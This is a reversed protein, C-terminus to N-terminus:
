CDYIDNDDGAKNELEEIKITLEEIKNIAEKLAGAIVSIYTVTDFSLTPYEYEQDGGTKAKTEKIEKRTPVSVPNVILQGIINDSGDANALIDQAIFNLKKTKKEDNKLNYEALGLDDKIFNYMDSYTIQDAARSKSNIYSINEKLTRDSSANVGNLSYLTHWRYSPDGLNYNGNIPIFPQNLALAWGYATIRGDYDSTNYHESHFDLYKGVEVVGDSKVILTQGSWNQGLTISNSWYGNSPLSNVREATWTIGCNNYAYPPYYLDVVSIVDWAGNAQIYLDFSGNNGSIYANIDGESIISVISTNIPNEAGGFTLHVASTRYKGRQTIYFTITNDCWAGYVTINAIKAFAVNEGNMWVEHVYSGMLNRMPRNFQSNLDVEFGDEVSEKGIALGRGGAKFDLTVFAPNIRVVKSVTSFKDSLTLRVDYAYATSITNSGFVINGGNNITWGGSWSTDTARKYQVSTSVTNKNSLSHYTYSAETKINTGDENYTGTSLTRYANLGTIAPPSYAQVNISVSKRDSVRGRSDTIYASFSITGTTYLVGTTTQWTNWTGGNGEIVYGTISSGYSGTAGWVSLTCKSKGQVYGFSVDAGANVVDAGLSTFSPKVSEPVVYTITQHASGIYTSGSYTEVFVTGWGSTANPTINALDLPPVWSVSTGVSTGAYRIDGGYNIYVKHTFSTSARSIYATVQTSGLTATTTSLSFTSTRPITDLTATGSTGITNVKGSSFTIGITASVSITFSRTGDANHYIDMTKTYIQKKQNGSLAASFSFDFNSGAIDMAGYKTVSSNITYSSGTSQLYATVTVNSTNNAINVSNRVWELVIRYAGNTGFQSYFSGSTAM